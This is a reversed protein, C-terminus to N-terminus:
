YYVKDITYSLLPSVGLCRIPDLDICWSQDKPVGEWRDRLKPWSLQKGPPLRVQIGKSGLHFVFPLVLLSLPRDSPKKKGM